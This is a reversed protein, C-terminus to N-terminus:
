SPNGGTGHLASDYPTAYKEWESQYAEQLDYFCYVTLDHDPMVDPISATAFSLSTGLFHGGIRDQARSSISIPDGAYLTFNESPVFVTTNHHWLHEVTLTWANRELVATVSINEAPMTAPLDPYWGTFTYGDVEPGAPPVITAGYDYTQATEEDEAFVYTITYQNVTSTATIEINRAPMNFGETVSWPTVTHGTKTYPARITVPKGYEYTEVNGVQAGDVKYTVTYNNASFTANVTLDNAPMTEPLAPSWGTFTHGEMEPADAPANVEASYEYTQTEFTEDMAMYSITYSNAAFMATVTVDRDPMVDPIKPSWGAFSHGTKVPNPPVVIEDGVDYEVSTSTGDIVCTFIATSKEWQSLFTLDMAPMKDPIDRIWGTFVYGEKTPDSEPKPVPYGYWVRNDEFYINADVWYRVSYANRTWKAIAVLDGRAKNLEEQTLGDGEYSDGPQLNAIRKYYRWGHFTFGDKYPDGKRVWTFFGDKTITYRETCYPTASSSFDTYFYVTGVMYTDGLVMPAEYTYSENANFFLSGSNSGSSNASFTEYVLPNIFMANDNSAANAGDKSDTLASKPLLTTFPSPIGNPRLPAPPTLTNKMSDLNLGNPSFNPTNIEGTDPNIKVVCSAHVANIKDTSTSPIYNVSILVLQVSSTSNNAKYTVSHSNGQSYVSGGTVYDAGNTVTFVPAYSPDASVIIDFEDDAEVTLTRVKTNDITIYKPISKTLSSAAASSVFLLVIVASLLFVKLAKKM